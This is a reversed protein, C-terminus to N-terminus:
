RHALYLVGHNIAGNDSNVAVVLVCFPPDSILSYSEIKGLLM